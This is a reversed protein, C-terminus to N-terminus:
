KIGAQEFISPLQNEWYSIVARNNENDFLLKNKGYPVAYGIFKIGQRKSYLFVAPELGTITPIRIIIGTYNLESTRGRKSKVKYVGMSVTLSTNLPIYNEVVYTDPYMRNLTDQMSIALGREWSGRSVIVMTLTIAAFVVIIGFFFGFKKLITKVEDNLM